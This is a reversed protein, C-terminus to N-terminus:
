LGEIKGPKLRLTTEQIEVLLARSGYHHPRLAEAADVTWGRKQPAERHELKLGKRENASEQPGAILHAVNVQIQTTEKPSSPNHLELPDLLRRCKTGRERAVRARLNFTEGGSRARLFSELVMPAMLVDVVELERWM